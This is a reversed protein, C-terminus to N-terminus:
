KRECDMAAIFRFLDYWTLHESLTSALNPISTLIEGACRPCLHRVDKGFSPINVHVIGDESETTYRCPYKGKGADCNYISRVSM